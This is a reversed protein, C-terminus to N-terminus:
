AARRIQSLREVRARLRVAEDPRPPIASEALEANLILNALQRQLPSWIAREAAARRVELATNVGQWTLRLAEAFCKAYTLVDDFGNAKATAHERRATAHAIRLLMALDVTGDDLITSNRHNTM